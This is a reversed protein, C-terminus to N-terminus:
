RAGPPYITFVARLEASATAVQAWGGARLGDRGLIAAVEGAVRAVHPAPGEVRVDFDVGRLRTLPLLRPDVRLEVLGGLAVVGLSVEIVIPQPPAVEVTVTAGGDVTGSAPPPPLPPPATVIAPPAVPVPPPPPRRMFVVPPGHDRGCRARGAGRGLGVSLVFAGTVLDVGDDLDARLRVGAAVAGGCARFQLALEADALWRQTLGADTAVAAPGAQLQVFLPAPGPWGSDLRLGAQAAVTGHLGRLETSEKSRGFVYNGTAVAHIRPSLRAGLSLGLGLMLPSAYVDAGTWARESWPRDIQDVNRPEVIDGEFGFRASATVTHIADTAFGRSYALELAATAANEDDLYLGIERALGLRAVAGDGGLREDSLQYGGGAVIAWADRDVEDTFARWRVQGFFRQSRALDVDDDTGRLGAGLLEYRLGLGLSRALTVDAEVGLAHAGGTVNDNGLVVGTTWDLGFRWQVPEPRAMPRCPIQEGPGPMQEGLDCPRLGRLDELSVGKPWGDDDVPSWPEPEFGSPTPMVPAPAPQANAAPIWALMSLLLVRSMAAGYLLAHAAIGARLDADRPPRGDRARWM